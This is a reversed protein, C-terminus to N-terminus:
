HLYDRRAVKFIDVLIFGNVTGVLVFSNVMILMWM